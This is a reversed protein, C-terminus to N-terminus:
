KRKEVKIVKKQETDRERKTARQRERKIRGEEGEITEEDWDRKIRGEEGARKELSWWMELILWGRQGGRWRERKIGGMVAETKM